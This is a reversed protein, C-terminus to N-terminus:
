MDDHRPIEITASARSNSVTFVESLNPDILDRWFGMHSYPSKGELFEVVDSATFAAAERSTLFRDIITTDHVSIQIKPVSVIAVTSAQNHNQLPRLELAGRSRPHRELFGRLFESFKM